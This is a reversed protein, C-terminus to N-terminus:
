LLWYSGQGRLGEERVITTACHVPGKYKLLERGLGRQQQLKIKVVEFPTVIVVAELVGAGFGAALRGEANLQGTKFDALASRFLANSGMRLTYKFTLHTGFPTLGKRLASSLLLGM